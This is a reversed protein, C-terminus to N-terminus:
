RDRRDCENRNTVPLSSDQEALHKTGRNFHRPKSKSWGPINPMAFRIKRSVPSPTPPLPVLELVRLVPIIGVYGPRSSDMSMLGELILKLIERSVSVEWKRLIKRM